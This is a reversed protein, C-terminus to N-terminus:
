GPLIEDSDKWEAETIDCENLRGWNCHARREPLNNESLRECIETCLKGRENCKLDISM